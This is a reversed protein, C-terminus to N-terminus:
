RSAIMVIDKVILVGMLLLLLVMGAAHIYGEYKPNIKKKTIATFATTILLFFVRGGDLAPIPLMNMVALNVAIFAALTLINTIADAVTKSKEGTQVMVDVVGVVGSMQDVGVRGTVLDSLGWWVMRTYDICEYAAYRLTNGFTLEDFDAFYLGYFMGTNGEKDTLQQKEMKFDNLTIKEGNRLVTVDYVTDAGRDTLLSFDQFLYTRKGDIAYIEDGLQLGGEECLTCGEMFDTVKLTQMFGGSFGLLLAVIVFGTLFNMFSGACLIILRKWWKAASFARPNGNDEDEGEMACYGGIPILRFSYLTEGRRKQLLKPGMNISFENVQVGSLKAAIFHGLEHIFILFGFILIAFLLYLVTTM